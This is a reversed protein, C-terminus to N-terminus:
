RKAPAGIAARAADLDERRGMVVVQQGEELKFDPDFAVRQEGIEPDSRLIALVVLHHNRRLGTDGLRKGALASTVPLRAMEFGRPLELYRAHDDGEIVFKARLSPRGLVELHLTSLLDRRTVRGLLAGEADVVPLEDYDPEDFHDLVDALSSKPDLAAPRRMVDHAIVARGAAGASRNLFEKVDHLTVIGQLARREDVVYLVDLHERAFRDAIEQLSTRPAILPVERDLLDGIRTQRLALEEIGADVPVGRARLRETYLSDRALFKATLSAAVAGVALPVILAPRQTMEFLLAVATIPAHTVGALAGGMGVITLTQITTAGLGAASAARNLVAAAMAGLTAGVMMAPTFVGGQGGSGVSCATAVPKLLFLLLASAALLRAPDFTPLRGALLDAVEHFGNGFVEPWCLGIAGVLLGGLAPKVASPLALAAFAASARQLLRQFAVAAGGCAVGLPLAALAAVLSGDALAVPLDYVPHDSLLARM